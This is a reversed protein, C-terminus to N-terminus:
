HDFGIETPLHKSVIDARPQSEILIKILEFGERDDVDLGTIRPCVLPRIRHGMFLSGRKRWGNHRFIELNFPQYVKPFESRRMKSRAPDWSKLLPELFGESNIVHLRADAQTVLRVSDIDDHQELLRIGEHVAAKSRFPSTPKLWVWLDPLEMGCAPLNKKLDALIEEEMATDSSALSSRLYPCEAGYRRSIEAYDPSDTSVIVRDIDLQRGFAVSYALLPHGGVNMINKDPLGKSGSRAPILAYVRMTNEGCDGITVSLETL